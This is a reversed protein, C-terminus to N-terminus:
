RSPADHKKSAFFLISRQEANDVLATWEAKTRTIEGLSAPVALSDLTLASSRSAKPLISQSAM